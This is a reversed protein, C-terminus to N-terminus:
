VAKNPIRGDPVGARLSVALAAAAFTRIELSVAYNNAYNNMKGIPFGCECHAARRGLLAAGRWRVQALLCVNQIVNAYSIDANGFTRADTQDLM